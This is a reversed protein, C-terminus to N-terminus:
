SIISGYLSIVTPYISKIGSPMSFSLSETDTDSLAAALAKRRCFSIVTIPKTGPSTVILTKYSPLVMHCPLMVTSSGVAGSAGCNVSFM